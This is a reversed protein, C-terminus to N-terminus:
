RRGAKRYAMYVLNGVILAVLLPYPAALLTAATGILAVAAGYAIQMLRHNPSTKPDVLMVFAFLYNFGLIASAIGILSLAGDLALSAAIGVIVFAAAATLRRAQYALIILIPTLSVAIGYVNYSSAAWWADGMGFAALAVVLGLAAPNLINVSKYKLFLKSAVAILSALLVLMLPANVPAVSGIILGTIIGSFPIRPKHKLVLVSLMLDLAAASAAAAILAYPVTRLTYSSVAAIALLLAIAWIYMPAIHQNLIKM